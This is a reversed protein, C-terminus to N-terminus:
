DGGGVEEQGFDIDDAENVGDSYYYIMLRASDNLFNIKGVDVRHINLGTRAKLDALLELRKEPVILEIKEYIILKVSEHRFRFVKEIVFVLLLTFFNAFLVEAYSIKKNILANIVSLGIAVFLYTMERINIQTTRYRMIGFIAFLGLAFGLQLKVNSLMFSIMFVISGLMIFTFLYDRRRTKNFYLGRVLIFLILLNFLFRLVLEGFDDQNILKMDFLQLSLLINILVSM